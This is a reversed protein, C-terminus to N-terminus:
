LKFGEPFIDSLKYVIYGDENELIIDTGNESQFENLIQRCAGCPFCKEMKPSYIAVAKFKTEGETIATGAANREACITLGYSANEFNCGTFVKDNETLICAGVPFKSYPIYANNAAKKANELLIQYDM